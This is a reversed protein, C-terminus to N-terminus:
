LYDFISISTVSGFFFHIRTNKDVQGACLRQLNQLICLVRFNPIDVHGAVTKLNINQIKKEGKSLPINIDLYSLWFFSIFINKWKALV